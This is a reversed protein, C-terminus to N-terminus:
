SSSWPGCRTAPPSFRVPLRHRLVTPPSAPTRSVPPSHLGSSKVHLLSPADVRCLSPEHRLGVLRSLEGRTTALLASKGRPVRNRQPTAVVLHFHYPMLCFAHFELHGATVINAPFELCNQHDRDDLYTSIRAVGRAIVHYFAGLFEVRVPM